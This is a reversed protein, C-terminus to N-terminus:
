AAVARAARWRDRLRKAGRRASAVTWLLTGRWGAGYIRVRYLDDLRDAFRMKHAAPTLGNGLVDYCGIAPDDCCARIHLMALVHGPSQAAWAEDFSAKPVFLRDGGLLGYEFAVLRGRHRLTAVRLKGAAAAAHWIRTYFLTDAASNRIASGNRGKWGAAELALVEALVTDSGDQEVAFTMGAGDILDRELKLWRRRDRKSRGALWSAFPRRCDTVPARAFVDCHVRRGWSRAAAVLPCDAPLYAIEISDWDGACPAPRGSAGPPLDLRITHLNTFSRLCRFRIPGFRRAESLLTMGDLTYERATAPMYADRWARFWADSNHFPTAPM